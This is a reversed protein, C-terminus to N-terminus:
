NYTKKKKVEKRLDITKRLNQYGKRYKQKDQYIYKHESNEIEESIQTIYGIL